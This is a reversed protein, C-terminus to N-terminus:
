AMWSESSRGSLQNFFGKHSGEHRWQELQIRIVQQQEKSARLLFPQKICLNALGIALEYTKYPLGGAKKILGIEQLHMAIPSGVDLAILYEGQHIVAQLVHKGLPSVKALAIRLRRVDSVRWKYVRQYLAVFGTIALYVG